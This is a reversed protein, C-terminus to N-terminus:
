RDSEWNHPINDTEIESEKSGLFSTEGGDDVDEDADVDVDVDTWPARGNVELLTCVSTGHAKGVEDMGVELSGASIGEQVVMGVMCASSDVWASTVAASIMQVLFCSGPEEM